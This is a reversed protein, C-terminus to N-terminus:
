PELQLSSGKTSNDKIESDVIFAMSSVTAIRNATARKKGKRKQSRLRVTAISTAAAAVCDSRRRYLRGGLPQGALM